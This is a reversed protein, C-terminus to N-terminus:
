VSSQVISLSSFEFKLEHGSDLLVCLVVNPKKYSFEWYGVRIDFAENEEWYAAEVLMKKIDTMVLEINTVGDTLQLRCSRKYFRMSRGKKECSDVSSFVVGALRADHLSIEGENIQNIANMTDRPIKKSIKKLYAQYVKDNNEWERLAADRESKDRSNIKRWLEDTFYKM